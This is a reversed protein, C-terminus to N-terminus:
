ADADLAFATHLLRAADDAKSRQVVVSIKIESTSIMGINIGAEALAEFMQYAVGTHSKMGVGVISVQAINEDYDVGDANLDSVHGELKRRVKPLDDTEVTFSLDTHGAESTNQVIMDVNIHAEALDRFIRAAVGPRDPLRTLTVKAQDKDIAVGRVVTDEMDDGGSKVLTGPQDGFTLRVELVVDHNKAFEVARSQLVGAGVSALELMEDYEIADLKRARPVIRPDATFVGEVDKCFQCRDAKLATALAVATTDSGGRGLTAIEETPTLGQFGAVIVIRGNRLHAFVREPEVANIKAKLHTADTRIGAQPGTMSVAEAGLAHLAMTLLSISVQEGTSLLMDMERDSPEPNIERAMKVLNDTSDGMASVVVVVDHGERRTRLIREAVKRISAIDAVSSGGYKQVYVGM